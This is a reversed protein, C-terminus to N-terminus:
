GRVEACFIPVNELGAAVLAAAHFMYVTGMKVAAVM